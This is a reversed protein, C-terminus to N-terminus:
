KIPLIPNASMALTANKFALVPFSVGRLIIVNTIKVATQTIPMLLIFLPIAMRCLCQKLALIVGKAASM